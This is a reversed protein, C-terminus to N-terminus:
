TSVFIFYNIRNVLYKEIKKRRGKRLNPMGMGV